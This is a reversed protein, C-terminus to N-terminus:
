VVGKSRWRFPAPALLAIWGWSRALSPGATLRSQGPVLACIATMFRLTAASEGCFLEADSQRLAGGSIRWRYGDPLVGVGVQALVRSAAETDEASLPNVIQSGGGALAACMLGRITYSKSAPAIVQGAIRSRDIHAKM